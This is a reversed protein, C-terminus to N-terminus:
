KKIALGWVHASTFVIDELTYYKSLKDLWFEKDEILEIIMYNSNDCLFIVHKVGTDNIIEQWSSCFEALSFHRKVLLNKFFRNTVTNELFWDNNTCLNLYAMNSINGDGRLRPICSAPTVRPNTNSLKAFSQIEEDTIFFLLTILGEVFDSSWWSNYFTISKLTISKLALYEDLYFEFSAEKSNGDYDIIFEKTFETSM